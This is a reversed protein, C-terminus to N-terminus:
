SPRRPYAAKRKARPTSEEDPLADALIKAFGGSTFQEKPLPLSPDLYLDLSTSATKPLASSKTM